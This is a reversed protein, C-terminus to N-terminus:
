LGEAMLFTQAVGQSLCCVLLYQANCYYHGADLLSSLGWYGTGFGVPNFTADLVWDCYQICTLVVTRCHATAFRLCASILVQM